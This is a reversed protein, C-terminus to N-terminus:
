FKPVNCRKAIYPIILTIVIVINLCIHYFKEYKLMKAKEPEM